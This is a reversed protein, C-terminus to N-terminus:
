KLLRKKFWLAHLSLNLNFSYYSESLLDKENPIYRNGYAFSCNIIAGSKKLPMGFGLSFEYSQLQKSEYMLYSKSMNAGARYRIVKFFKISRYDPTFEIGGAFQEFNALTQQEGFFKTDSWNARNYDFAIEYKKNLVVSVGTSFSQPLELAGEQVNADFLTDMFLNNSSTNVLSTVFRNNDAGIDSKLAYTAALNLIFNDNISKHFHIGSSFAFSNVIIRDEQNIITTSYDNYSSITKIKDVSGFIYSSKLGVSLYDTIKFSNDFYLSNIGGEGKYLNTIQTSDNNHVHITTEQINYNVSSLPKLGLGSKWWKNIPIGLAIYAINGDFDTFSDDKTKLTYNKINIGVEFIVSNSSLATYSAPNNPNLHLSSYLPTSVGGMAKSRGYGLESLEGVGFMSYPSNTTQANINISVFAIFITLITFKYKNLM